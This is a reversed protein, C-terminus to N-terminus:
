DKASTDILTVSAVQPSTQGQPVLTMWVSGIEKSFIVQSAEYPTVALTIMLESPPVGTTTKTASQKVETALVEAAALIKMTQSKTSVGGKFTVYVSVRDGPAAYQAIGADLPLSMSIAEKGKPIALRGRSSAATGFDTRMLTQGSEIQELAFLGKIEETNSIAGAPAYRRPIRKIAVAGGVASAPTGANITRTAVITPVNEGARESRTEVRRVYSLVMASGLLGAILAAAVLPIRRQM